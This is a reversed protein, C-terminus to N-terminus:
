PGGRHFEGFHKSAAAEYAASAEEATAFMGLYQLRGHIRISAQYPRKNVTKRQTVGRFGSTNTSFLGANGANDKANALRLNSIRNDARNRNVHDIWKPPWEGNMYFWALRHERYNCKDIRIIRYGKANICGAIGGASARPSARMKWRFVGTKPNYDLVELLREHTLM